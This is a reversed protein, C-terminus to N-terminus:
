PRTQNTSSWSGPGTGRTGCSSCPYLTQSFSSHPGTVPRGQMSLLVTTRQEENIRYCPVEYAHPRHSRRHGIETWSPEYECWRRFPTCALASELNTHPLATTTRSSKRGSQRDLSLEVTTVPFRLGET